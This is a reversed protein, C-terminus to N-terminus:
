YEERVDVVFFIDSDDWTSKHACYVQPDALRAFDPKLYYIIGEGAGDLTVGRILMIFIVVLPFIATFYVIQRSVFLCSSVSHLTLQKPKRM